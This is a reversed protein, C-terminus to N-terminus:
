KRTARGSRKQNSSQGAMHDMARASHSTAGMELPAVLDAAPCLCDRTRLTAVHARDHSRPRAKAPASFAGGTGTVGCITCSIVLKYGSIQVRCDSGLRGNRVDEQGLSSLEDWSSEFAYWPEPFRSGEAHSRLMPIVKTFLSSVAVQKCLDDRMNGSGSDRM